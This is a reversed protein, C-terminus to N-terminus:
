RTYWREYILQGLREGLSSVIADRNASLVVAAVVVVTLVATQWYNIVLALRTIRALEPNRRRVAYWAPFSFPVLM